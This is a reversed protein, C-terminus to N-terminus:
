YEKKGINPMKRRPLILTLNELKFDAIQVKDCNTTEFNCNALLLNPEERLLTRCSVKRHFMAFILEFNENDDNNGMDCDHSFICFNAHNSGTLGYRLDYGPMSLCPPAPDASGHCGM